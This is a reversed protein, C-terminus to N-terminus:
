PKKQLTLLLDLELLMKEGPNIQFREELIYNEALVLEVLHEGPSLEWEGSGLEQGDIRVPFMLKEPVEISCPLMELKHSLQYIKGQEIPITYEYSGADPSVIMLTHMGTNLPIYSNSLAIEVSDIYLRCDNILEDEGELQVSLGGKEAYIPLATVHLPFTYASNPIGKMIPLISLMLPFNGPRLSTSVVSTADKVINHNEVLPIKISIQNQSPLIHMLIRQGRYDKINLSPLPTIDQYLYLAFSNRYEQLERPIDMRLEIGILFPNETAINFAALEDINLDFGTNQEDEAVVSIIGALEGRLNEAGLFANLIIFFLLLFRIKLM